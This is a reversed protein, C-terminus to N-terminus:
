KGRDFADESGELKHEATTGKTGIIKIFVNADTGAGLSSGTTVKLSYESFIKFL